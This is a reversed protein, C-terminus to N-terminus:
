RIEESYVRRGRDGSLFYGIHWQWFLCSKREWRRVRQSALLLRSKKPKNKSSEKSFMKMCLLCKLMGNNFVLKYNKSISTNLTALLRNTKKEQLTMSFLLLFRISVKKFSSRTCELWGIFQNRLIRSSERKKSQVDPM